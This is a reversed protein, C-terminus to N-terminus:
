FSACMNRVFWVMALVEEFAMIIMMVAQRDIMLSPTEPV